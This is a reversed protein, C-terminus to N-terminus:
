AMHHLKALLLERSLHDFTKSLDKVPAGFSKGKDLVAKWKELIALLCNNHVTVKELSCQFKSLFPDILNRIQRFVCKEFM